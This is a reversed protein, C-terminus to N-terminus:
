PFVNRLARVTDNDYLTAQFSQGGVEIIMKQMQEGGTGASIDAVELSKSTEESSERVTQSKEDGSDTKNGCASLLMASLVVLLLSLYKKQM